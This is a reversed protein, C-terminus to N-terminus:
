VSLITRVEHALTVVIQTLQRLQKLSIGRTRLGFWVLAYCPYYSLEIQVRQWELRVLLKVQPSRIIVQGFIRHGQQFDERLSRIYDHVIQFEPRRPDLRTTDWSSSREHEPTAEWLKNEVETFSKYHRPVLHERPFDKQIAIRQARDTQQHVFLVTLSLLLIALFIFAM